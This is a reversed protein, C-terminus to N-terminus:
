HQARNTCPHSRAKSHCRDGCPRNAAFCPCRGTMCKSQSSCHCVEPIDVGDRQFQAISVDSLYQRYPLVPRYQSRQLAPQDFQKNLLKNALNAAYARKAASQSNLNRVSRGLLAKYRSQFTMPHRDRNIGDGAPPGPRVAGNPPPLDPAAAAPSLAAVHAPPAPALGDSEARRRRGRGRVAHAPDPALALALDPAPTPAPAPAPVVLAPAAPAAPRTTGDAIRVLNRADILRQMCHRGYLARLSSDPDTPGNPSISLPIDKTLTPARCIRTPCALDVDSPPYRENQPM